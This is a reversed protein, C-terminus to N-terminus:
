KRDPIPRLKLAEKSPRESDKKPLFITKGNYREYETKKLSDSIIIRYNEDIGLLHLDFLDHIDSRLLIGNEIHNTKEGKYSFIHAAQLVPIVTSGSIACKGEYAKLLEKRFRNQGRRKNISVLQKESENEIGQLNFPTENHFNADNPLCSNTQNKVLDNWKYEELNASILIRKTPNGGKTDSNEKKNAVAKSIKLRLEKVDNSTITINTKGDIKIAREKSSKLLYPKSILYIKITGIDYRNKLRDLIIELASLYDPNRISKSKKAGSRSELVLGSIEDYKKFTVVSNLLKNQDNIVKM